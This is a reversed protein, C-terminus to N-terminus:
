QRVLKLVQQQAGQRVHLLYVGTALDTGAALPLTTTGVGVQATQQAVLRGLADRLTLYVEGSRETHLLLSLPAPATSPNPYAQALWGVPFPVQVTRVPSYASTGDLDVQRLRYYILPAGYRALGADTFRYSHVQSSTGAGAVRGLPQFTRGDDSSEVQFYANNVESATAWRLLGDAGLREATFSVLTV